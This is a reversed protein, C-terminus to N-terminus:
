ALRAPMVDQAVLDEYTQRRVILESHGEAVLVVAPRPFRNYNSAMAFNYAGTCQVALLDGPRPDPLPVDRFLVDTECHKGAVTVTRCHAEAARSASLVEYRAEYLAPRPNDSLGGDVAVYTRVGPIEKISGVRYLTIGAEGVLSRGPEQHLVPARLGATRLKETLVTAIRQAFEECTPPRQEELYRIGLGGGINLEELEVGLATRVTALLDVMAAVSDAHCETDLLQSGVHCHLGLLRLAPIERARQIAALAAGSGIDFGFKTDVQGTSIRRHTHPDIGPAVRLLVPQPRKRGATLETLLDLEYANDVVIRGVGAELAMRLEEPSKNNGHLTIRPPPFGAKLATYLEGGSAVDLGLGEQEVLRCMAKCLFVKGAYAVETRPYYKRFATVYERARDRFAREDVVYLPTGYDEALHVTDVGGIELHGAANIRQTGHLLM